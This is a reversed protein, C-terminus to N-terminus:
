FDEETMSLWTSIAKVVKLSIAVIILVVFIGIGVALEM